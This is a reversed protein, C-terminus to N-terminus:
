GPHAGPLPGRAPGSSFAQVLWASVAGLHPSVLHPHPPGSAKKVPGPPKWPQPAHFAPHPPWPGHPAHAWRAVPGTVACAPAAGRCKTPKRLPAPTVAVPTGSAQHSRRASGAAPASRVPAVSHATTPAPPSWRVAPPAAPRAVALVPPRSPTGPPPPPASPTLLPQSWPDFRDPGATPIGSPSPSRSPTSGAIGLLGGETPADSQHAAVAFSGAVVACAAGLLGVKAAAAARLVLRQRGEAAPHGGAELAQSEPEQVAAERSGAKGSGAERPVAERAVPERPEAHAPIWWDDQEPRGPVSADPSDATM